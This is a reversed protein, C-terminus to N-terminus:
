SATIFLKNQKKLHGDTTGVFDQKAFAFSTKNQDVKLHPGKITFDLLFFFIAKCPSGLEMQTTDEKDEASENFYLLKM